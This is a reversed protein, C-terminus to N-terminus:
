THVSFRYVVGENAAAASHTGGSKLPIDYVTMNPSISTQAVAAQQLGHVSASLHQDPPFGVIRIGKSHYRTSFWVKGARGDTDNQPDFRPATSEGDKQREASMGALPALKDAMGVMAYKMNPEEWVKAITIMDAEGVDLNIPMKEDQGESFVQAQPGADGFHSWRYAIYEGDLKDVGLADRVDQLSIHDIVKGHKKPDRVNWVGLLAGYVAPVPVSAMLAPGSGSGQVNDWFWRGSLAAAPTDTKVVKTRGSQDTSTMKALLDKDTPYKPTESLLTPGPSLVRLLAHYLPMKDNSAFMDFDPVLALHTTLVSSYANWM